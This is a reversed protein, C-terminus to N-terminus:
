QTQSCNYHSSGCSIFQWCSDMQLCCSIRCQRGYIDPTCTNGCQAWQVRCNNQEQASCSGIVPYINGHPKFEDALADKASPLFMLALVFLIRM